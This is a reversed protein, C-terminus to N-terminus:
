GDLSPSETHPVRVRELHEFVQGLDVTHADSGLARMLCGGRELGLLTAGTIAHDQLGSAARGEGGVALVSDVVRHPGLLGPVPEDGRARLTEVLLPGDADRVSLRSAISGGREGTRGLVLTERVLASAGAGLSLTMSRTVEAGDAVVFPLARWVLRTHDGLVVDVNWSAARGEGDYAVTGGVDEITLTCGSAVRIDLRVADGGLLLAGGAGIAVSASTQSRSVLWPV